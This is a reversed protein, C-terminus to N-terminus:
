YRFMKRIFALIFIFLTCIMAPEPTLDSVVVNDGDFSPNVPSNINPSGSYDMFISNTSGTIGTTQFLVLTYDPDTTGSTKIVNVTISNETTQLTLAGCNIRDAESITTNGFKWDYLSGPKMILSNNVYLTTISNAEGASITGGTIILSREM